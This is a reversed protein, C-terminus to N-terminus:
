DDKMWAKLKAFDDDMWESVNPFCCYKTNGPSMNAINRRDNQTLIVMVSEKDGDYIRDGVKVKMKLRRM